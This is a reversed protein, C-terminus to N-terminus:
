LRPLLEPKMMRKRGGSMWSKGFRTQSALFHYYNQPAMSMSDILVWVISVWGHWSPRCRAKRSGHLRGMGQIWLSCQCRWELDGQDLWPCWCGKSCTRANRNSSFSHHPLLWLIYNCHLQILATPKYIVEFSELIGGFSVPKSLSTTALRFLLGVFAVVGSGGFVCHVLKGGWWWDAYYEPM